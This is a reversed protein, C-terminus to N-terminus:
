SAGGGLALYLAIRADIQQRQITIATRDAQLSRQRFILEDLLELDGAKYQIEALRLTERAAEAAQIVYQYRQELLAITDLADEVDSYADLVSQGYNRLAQRSSAEAALVLPEEAGRDFITDSLRAGLSLALDAPDLIDLIDSVSSGIDASLNLGPWQRVRVVNENAFAARVNYEAALIDPRRRLIDAPQGAYVASQVAPFNDSINLTGDPYRGLLAQLARINSRIDAQSIELSDRAGAVDSEALVQERRSAAGFEYRANVIRLTELQADLTAQTLQTQLKAEIAGIYARILQAILSQRANEYVAKAGELDFEAGLIDQEIGGWLDVEYSAGISTSYRDALDANELPSSANPSFNFNYLPIRTDQSETLLAQAREINQASAKLSRNQALSENILALLSEDQIIETWSQAIERDLGAGFAWSSPTNLDILEGEFDATRIEPSIRGWASNLSACGTLGGLGLALATSVALRSLRTM